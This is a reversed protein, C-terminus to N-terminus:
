IANGLGIDPGCVDSQDSIASELHARMDRLPVGLAASLEEFLCREARKFVEEESGSLSKLAGTETVRKEYISKITRVYAECDNPEMLRQYHESLQKKDKTRCVHAPISTIHAVLAEAEERRLVARMTDENEVPAYITGEYSVPKLKYYSRTEMKGMKMEAVNEVRCVGEQRYVVYDGISYM